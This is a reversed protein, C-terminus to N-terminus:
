VRDLLAAVDIVDIAGDGNVDECRGNGDVDIPPPNGAIGPPGCEPLPVTRNSVLTYGTTDREIGDVEVYYAGTADATVTLTSRQGPPVFRAEDLTTRDPGYIRFSADGSVLELTAELVEGADLAVRYFDSEGGRIKATTVERTVNAASEFGDNPAFADNEAPTVRDVDATCGTTADDEVTTLEVSYTGNEPLKVTLRDSGRSIREDALRNLDPGYIRFTLDASEQTVTVNLADTATAALRYVDPEGDVIEGTVPGEAIPRATDFDDNPEREETTAAAVGAVGTATSVVIGAVLVAVWPLFV